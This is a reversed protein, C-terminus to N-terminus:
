GWTKGCPVIQAVPFASGRVCVDLLRGFAQECLWQNRMVISPYGALGPMPLQDIQLHVMEFGARRPGLLTAVTQALFINPVVYGTPADAMAAAKRLVATADSVDPDHVIMLAPDPTIGARLLEVFYADQWGANATGPYVAECVFAIRRHGLSLLHRTAEQGAKFADYTVCDASVGALPHGIVVLPTGVAKVAEVTEATVYGTLLVGDCDRAFEGSRAAVQAADSIDPMCLSEFRVNMRAAISNVMMLMLSTVPDAMNAHPIIMGAKQLGASESLRGVKYGLEEGIRWVKRKTDMSIRPHDALAMSVTPVSVNAKLAIDKLRPKSGTRKDGAKGM